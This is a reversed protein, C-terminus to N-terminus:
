SSTVNGDGTTSRRTLGIATAVPLWFLWWHVGVRDVLTRGDTLWFVAGAALLALALRADPVPLRRVLAVATAGLTVAFLAGAVIGGHFFVALYMSHAHRFTVDELVTDDPTLIGRGFWLGQRAADAVVSEWIALRFSDGRPLVFDRTPESTALVAAILALAAAAAGLTGIFRVPASTRNALLLAACGLPLAVWAARTGALAVALAAALASGGALARWRASPARLTTDLAFLAVVTFAQAATVSNHVRGLGHLRGEPPFEILFSAIAAVAVGGGIVAFWRGIRDHVDGRGVCEALAVVFCGLVLARICIRALESAGASQSWTSTLVLYVLLATTCWALRVGAAAKWWAPSCLAVVGLVYTVLRPISPMPATLVAVFALLVLLDGMRARDRLFPTVRM